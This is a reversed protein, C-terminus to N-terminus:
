EARYRARDGTALLRTARLMEGSADVVGLFGGPGYARYRGPAVPHRPHRGHRLADSTEADLALMPMAGLAADPPLLLADRGREDLAELADLSAARDLTLGATATRRLAALHAASGLARGVDEALVRVYTGKSCEVDVIADPPSWDVLRLALIRVERPMREITEGARAYAYYPRGDRKLAAYMPPQQMLPGTFRALADDLAARDFAVPRTKVVEGEADGTSTAAGFRFTARYAKPADLLSQAFKTAEGFCVPLLGTALPDLTGAHGAKAARYLHRVRQLVANSSAGAPKDVLVIGDVRRWARREAPSM